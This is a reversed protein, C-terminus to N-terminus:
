IARRCRCIHILSLKYVALSGVRQPIIVGSVQEEVFYQGSADHYFKLDLQVSANEHESHHVAPHSDPDSVVYTSGGSTPEYLKTAPDLQTVPFDTGTDPTPDTEEDRAVEMYFLDGIKYIAKDSSIHNNRDAGSVHPLGTTDSRLGASYSAADDYFRGGGALRANIEEIPGSLSVTDYFISGVRLVGATVQLEVSGMKDDVDAIVVNEIRQENQEGEAVELTLASGDEETPLTITPADDFPTIDIQVTKTASEM